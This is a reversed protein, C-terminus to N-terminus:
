FEGEAVQFCTINNNRWMNVVKDRDDFVCLIKEKELTDLWDKKLVEDPTFDNKERMLIMHYKVNNENLWKFTKDEVQRSRGSLIIVKYGADYLLKNMKIVPMNPTDKDCEEFFRNWNKKKGTIYKRRHGILALTGDLDFIVTDKKM